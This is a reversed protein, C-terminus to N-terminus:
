GRFSALLVSNLENTTWPPVSAGGRITSNSANAKAVFMGATNLGVANSNVYHAVGGASDELNSTDSSNIAWYGCVVGNWGIAALTGSPGGVASNIFSNEHWAVDVKTPLGTFVNAVTGYNGKFPLFGANPLSSGYQNTPVYDGGILGVHLTVDIQNHASWVEWRRNLGYSFHVTLQGTVSSNISGLYTCQYQPCSIADSASTDCPIAAATVLLGNYRALQRSALDPAPWAPGTCIAGTVTGFVDRSTGASWKAGGSISPGITDTPSSSFTITAWNGTIGLVPFSDNNYPAYWLTPSTVDVGASMVPDGAVLTLRGGPLSQANAASLSLLFAFVFKKMM